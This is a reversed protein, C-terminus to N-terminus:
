SSKPVLLPNSVSPKADIGTTTELAARQGVHADFATLAEDHEM